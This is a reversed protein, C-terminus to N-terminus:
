ETTTKVTIPAQTKDSLTATGGTVKGTSDIVLEIATVSAGPDGKDGKAGDAGNTGDKVNAIGQEMNNLKASTITDGASWNNPTYAM